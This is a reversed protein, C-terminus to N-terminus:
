YGWRSPNLEELIKERIRYCNRRCWAIRLSIVPGLKRFQALYLEYEYIVPIFKDLAKLREEYSIGVGLQKLYKKLHNM